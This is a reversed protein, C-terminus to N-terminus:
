KQLKGKAFVVKHLAYAVTCGLFVVVEAVTFPVLLDRALLACVLISGMLVILSVFAGGLAFSGISLPRISASHRLLGSSACFPLFGVFGALMGLGITMPRQDSEKNVAYIANRM